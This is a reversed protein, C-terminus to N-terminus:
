RAKELGKQMDALLNPVPLYMTFDPAGGYDARWRIKGDPGVVIFTHGSHMRGMMGYRNTQYAEQVSDQPRFMPDPDSLIPTTLRDDAVKKKSAELPDTTISAITDMGLARFESWSAEIQKLQDWCPQCMVGEQFYLLVTKGRLSQLDFVGGSTSPLRIPPAVAGPGPSGVVFRYQGALAPVKSKSNSFYIAALIVLVGGVMLFAGALRRARSRGRRGADAQSGSDQRGFAAAPTQASVETEVPTSTESPADAKVSSPKAPMSGFVIM